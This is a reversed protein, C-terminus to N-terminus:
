DTINFQIKPEDDVPTLVKKPEDETYIGIENLWKKSVVVVGNFGLHSTLDSLKIKVFSTSGKPRGRGKKKPQNNM